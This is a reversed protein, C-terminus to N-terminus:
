GVQKGAGTQKRNLLWVGCCGIGFMPISLLQGMSLAGAVFGLHADPQRYFELVFRILAYAAIFTYFVSWAARTYRRALLLISFLLPGECLAQYLQSPHRPQNGAGPFVMGWPVDTVRGWLEANIFNGIRGFFLGFCTAIVLADAIPGIALDRRRCFIIVAVVVGLLGGHFSMGGEWIHLIELPHQVYYSLNYFLVYGLRGGLVVGFVGAFLLDGVGECSLDLRQHKVQRCLYLYASAFGALYMLGYWRVALPGLEFAVPDIDPFQLM